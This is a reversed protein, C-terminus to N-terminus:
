CMPLFQLTKIVCLIVSNGWIMTVLASFCFIAFGAWLVTQLCIRSSRWAGSIGQGGKSNREKAKQSAAMKRWDRFVGSNWKCSGKKSKLAIGKLETGRIEDGWLKRKVIIGLDIDTDRIEWSNWVCTWTVPLCRMQICAVSRLSLLDLVWRGVGLRSDKGPSYRLLQAM